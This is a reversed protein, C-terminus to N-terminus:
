LDPTFGSWSAYLVPLEPSQVPFAPSLPVRSPVLPSSPVPSATFRNRKARCDESHARLLNPPIPVSCSLCPIKDEAVEEEVVDLTLHGQMPRVYCIAQGLYSGVLYDTTYGGAPRRIIELETRSTQSVRFLEFGGGEVLKPFVSALTSEFDGSTGEKQFTVVREGLGAEFHTRKSSKLPVADQDKWPL